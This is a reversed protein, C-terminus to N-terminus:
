ATIEQHIIKRIRNLATDFRQKTEFVRGLLIGGEVLIIITDAYEDPDIGKKFDGNKIGSELICKLTNHLAQFSRKVTEKLFTLHDDAETAANLLPCGGQIVVNEFIDNYFDVIALLQGKASQEKALYSRMTGRLKAANHKFVEEIIEDKNQFNGYISGKTLGTLELIDTLSTAAYGKSNFLPAAKDIIMQRTQEAKGM